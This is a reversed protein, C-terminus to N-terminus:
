EFACILVYAIRGAPMRSNVQVVYSDRYLIKESLPPGPDGEHNAAHTEM